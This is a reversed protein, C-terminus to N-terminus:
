VKKTFSPQVVEAPLPEEVKEVTNGPEEVARDRNLLYWTFLPALVLFTMGIVLTLRRGMLCVILALLLTLGTAVMFYTSNEPIMIGFYLAGLMALVALLIPLALPFLSDAANGDDYEDANLPKSYVVSSNESDLIVPVGFFSSLPVWDAMGEKWVFDDPFLVGNAWHRRLEKETYPGRVQGDRNVHIADLAPKTSTPPVVTSASLDSPIIVQEPEIQAPSIEPSVSEPLAPTEERCIELRPVGNESKVKLILPKREKVVRKM